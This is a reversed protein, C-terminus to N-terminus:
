PIGIAESARNHREQRGACLGTLFEVSRENALFGNHRLLPTQPVGQLWLRSLEHTGRARIPHWKPIRLRESALLHKRLARADDGQRQFEITL